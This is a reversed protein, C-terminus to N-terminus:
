QVKHNGRQLPTAPRNRQVPLGQGRWAYPTLHAHRVLRDRREPAFNNGPERAELMATAAEFTEVVTQHGANAARIAKAMASLETASGRIDDQEEAVAATVAVHAAGSVNGSDGAGSQPWQLETQPEGKSHSDRAFVSQPSPALALLYGAQAADVAPKAVAAEALIPSQRMVTERRPWGISALTLLLVVFVCGRLDGLGCAAGAWITCALTMFDM